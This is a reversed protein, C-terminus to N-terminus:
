LRRARKRKKTKKANSSSASRDQDPSHIGDETEDLHLQLDTDLKFHSKSGKLGTGQIVMASQLKAFNRELTYVYSIFKELSASADLKLKEKMIDIEDSSLLSINKYFEKGKSVMKVFCTENKMKITGRNCKRHFIGKNIFFQIEQIMKSVNVEMCLDERKISSKKVKLISALNEKTLKIVHATNCNICGHINQAFGCYCGNDLYQEDLLIKNPNMHARTSSRKNIRTSHQRANLQKQLRPSVLNCLMLTMCRYGHKTQLFKLQSQIENSHIRNQLDTDAVDSPHNMIQRLFKQTALFEETNIEKPLTIQAATSGAFTQIAKWIKNLHETDQLSGVHGISLGYRVLFKAAEVAVITAQIDYPRALEPLLGKAIVQLEVATKELNALLAELDLKVANIESQTAGYKPPLIRKSLLYVLKRQICTHLGLVHLTFSENKSLQISKQNLIDLVLQRMQWPYQFWINSHTGIHRSKSQAKLMDEKLRKQESSSIDGKALQYILLYSKELFDAHVSFKGLKFTKLKTIYASLLPGLGNANIQNKRADISHLFNAYVEVDNHSCGTKFHLADTCIVDVVLGQRILGIGHQKCYEMREAESMTKMDEHFEDMEERSPFFFDTSGATYEQMTGVTWKYVLGGVDNTTDRGHGFFPSSVLANTGALQIFPSVSKSNWAAGGLILNVAKLDMSCILILDNYTIEKYQFEGNLIALKLKAIQNKLFKYILKADASNESTDASVICMKSFVNTMSDTAFAVSILLQNKAAGFSCQEAGDSYLMIAMVEKEFLQRYDTENEALYLLRAKLYSVLDVAMHKCSVGPIEVMIPMTGSLTLEKLIKSMDEDSADLITNFNEAMIETELFRFKVKDKSTKYVSKSKYRKTDGSSKKFATQLTKKTRKSIGNTRLTTLSKLLFMPDRRAVKLEKIYEDICMKAVHKNVKTDDQLLMEVETIKQQFTKPKNTKKKKAKVSQRLNQIEKRQKQLQAKIAEHKARESAIAAKYRDENQVIQERINRKGADYGQKYYKKEERKKLVEETRKKEEALKKLNHKLIPSAILALAGHPNQCKYSTVLGNNDNCSRRIYNDNIIARFHKLNQRNKDSLNNEQEFGLSMFFKKSADSNLQICSVTVKEFFQSLDMFVAHLLRTTNGKRRYERKTSLNCIRIEHSDSYLEVDVIQIIKEVGDQIEVTSATIDMWVGMTTTERLSYTYEFAAPGDYKDHYVVAYFTKNEFYKGITQFHSLKILQDDPREPARTRRIGLNSFMSWVHEIDSEHPEELDM